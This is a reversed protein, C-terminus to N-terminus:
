FDVGNFPSHWSVDDAMVLPVALFLGWYLAGGFLGHSDKMPSSHIM